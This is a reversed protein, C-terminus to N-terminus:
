LHIYYILKLTEIEYPKTKKSFIVPKKRKSTREQRICTKYIKNQKDSNRKLTM